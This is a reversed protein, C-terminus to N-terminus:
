DHLEAEYLIIQQPAFGIYLIVLRDTKRDTQRDWLKSIFMLYLENFWPTWRAPRVMVLVNVKRLFLEMGLVAVMGLITSMVLLLDDQM